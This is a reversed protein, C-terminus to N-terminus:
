SNWYQFIPGEHSYIPDAEPFPAHAINHDAQPREGKRGYNMDWPQGGPYAGVVGLNASSGLNKHAVGAPIIVVDGYRLKQTIGNEGGFRVTASGNYIGLVEHTTSHYHHFTYIGNRWSGEWDHAAFLREFISAPDRREALDIAQHYILLPLKPNNPISGDDKLNFSLVRPPNICRELDRPVSVTSTKASM